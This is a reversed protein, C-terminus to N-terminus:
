FNWWLGGTNITPADVTISGPDITPGTVSGETLGVEILLPTGTPGEVDIGGGSLSPLSGGTAVGCGTAAFGLTALVAATGLRRIKRNMIKRWDNFNATKGVACGAVASGVSESFLGTSQTNAVM